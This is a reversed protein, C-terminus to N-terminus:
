KRSEYCNTYAENIKSKLANFVSSGFQLLQRRNPFKVIWTLTPYSLVYITVPRELRPHSYPVFGFHM